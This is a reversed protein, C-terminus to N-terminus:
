EPNYPRPFGPPPPAPPPVEPGLPDPVFIPFGGEPITVVTGGVLWTNPGLQTVPPGEYPPLTSPPTAPPQVPPREFPLITPGEPPACQTPKPAPAGPKAAAGGPKSQPGPKFSGALFAGFLNGGAMQQIDAPDGNIGYDNFFPALIPIGWSGFVGTFTPPPGFPSPGLNVPSAWWLFNGVGNPGNVVVGWSVNYIGPALGDYWFVGWASGPSLSSAGVLSGFLDGTGLVANWGPRYWPIGPPHLPRPHYVNGNEDVMSLGTPDNFTTPDNGVYGYLNTDGGGFGLPDNEVWRGITPSYDRERRGYLGTATDLRTDQYLYVWGYNSSGRTTWSAALITVAGFPDYIYREQVTGTTDVLATVNFNVDQEAYMRQSPTDREVLADIYVPSWVYQDQMSSGM